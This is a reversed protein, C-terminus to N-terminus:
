LNPTLIDLSGDEKLYKATSFLVGPIGTMLGYVNYKTNFSCMWGKELGFAHLKKYERDLISKFKKSEDNGLYNMYYSLALLNGSTGHCLSFNTMDFGIEVIQEAAHEVDKKLEERESDSLIKYRDDLQLQALRAVLVGTSGHCWNASTENNRKDVWGKDIKQRNDFNRAKNFLDLADTSRLQGALLLLAIEVGLNGHALSVNNVELRNWCIYNEDYIGLEKLKNLSQSLNEITTDTNRFATIENPFSSLFDAQSVDINLCYSDIIDSMYSPLKQDTILGIRFIASIIGLKGVFYSTNQIKSYSNLLTSFIRKLCAIIKKQRLSDVLDYAESLAIGIGALGEYVSDDMPVLEFADYDTVKLTLWNTSNDGFSYREDNLIIDVLTNIGTYLVEEDNSPREYKRYEEQLETSYLAQTTKISFEILNIQEEILEENLNELKKIVVSLASTGLKWIITEGDRINCSNINVYFYPIDMNLLQKEESQVLTHSDYEHLKNAMKEFLIQSQNCYVPSILLQRILSYDRTNRFLIRTQIDSHTLYLKELYKKEKVFFYGLERFGEKIFDIYEAANLYNKEGMSNLFYPLHDQNKIQYKKKEVHVDDRNYNVVIKAEGILTGGLVGSTDGGFIKDAEAIPLLGTSLVSNRSNEIIQFTAENNAITDFPTISFITEVDVLTPTINASILNEFHLDSINLIYSYAFLYGVRRYFEEAEKKSNLPRSIIFKEWFYEEKDLFQPIFHIKKGLYASVRADLLNLLLNPKSSKKKFVVKQEQYTVICVGNGNHIDGTVKLKIADINPILSNSSIYDQDVLESFDEIFRNKVYEMLDLYKQISLIVRHNIDSFRQEIEDLIIGKKCLVNNFYDYRIESSSGVLSEEIRKENIIYILTPRYYDSIKKEIDKIIDSNELLLEPFYKEIFVKPFSDFQSYLIEKENM